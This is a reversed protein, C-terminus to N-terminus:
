AKRTHKESFIRAFVAVARLLRPGRLCADIHDRNQRPSERERTVEHMATRHLVLVRETAPGFHDRAFVTRSRRFGHFNFM